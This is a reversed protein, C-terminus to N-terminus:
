EDGDKHKTDDIVKSNVFDDVTFIKRCGGIYDINTRLPPSKAKGELVEDSHDKGLKVVVTACVFGQSTYM